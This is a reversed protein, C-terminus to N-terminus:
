LAINAIITILKNTTFTLIIINHRYLLIPLHTIGLKFQSHCSFQTNRKSM